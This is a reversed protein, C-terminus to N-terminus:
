WAAGPHARQLVQMEALLYGLHETHSGGAAIGKHMWSESAPMQLTAEELRGSVFKLWAPKLSAEQGNFVWMEGVFPWLQHVATQLRAHSEATGDGLRQVLDSTRRVHYAVEKLSKSAIDAVAQHAHQQLSELMLYHWVDFFFQRVLTYAYDRRTNAGAGGFCNPLETILFNKFEFGERWYALQDEDRGKGELQAALSLWLRAQGLLDLATNVLAMDEEIAPGKGCWEALRQSLILCSDGLTLALELTAADSQKPHSATDAVLEGSNALANM